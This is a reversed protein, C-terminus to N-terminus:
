NFLKHIKDNADKFSGSVSTVLVFVMVPRLLPLAIRRFMQWESAGELAAAEYLYRPINQLGALFLMAVLGM